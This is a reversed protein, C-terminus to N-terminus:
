SFAKWKEKELGFISEDQAKVKLDYDKRLDRIYIYHKEQEDKLEALRKKIQDASLIPTSIVHDKKARSM